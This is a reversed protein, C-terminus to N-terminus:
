GTIAQLEPPVGPGRPAAGGQAAGVQNTLLSAFEGVNLANGPAGGVGSEPAPIAAMLDDLQM